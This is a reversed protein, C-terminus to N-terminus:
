SRSDLPARIDPIADDSFAIPSLRKRYVKLDFIDFRNYYGVDEVTRLEPYSVLEFAVVHVPVLVTPRFPSALTRPSVGVLRAHCFAVAAPGPGIAPPASVGFIAASGAM